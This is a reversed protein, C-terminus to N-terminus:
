SRAPPRRRDVTATVTFTATAGSPSTSRPTRHRRDRRGPLHRRRRRRLDLDVGTLSAPFTDTVTADTCPRRARRQHRRDHLHDASGPVATAVGDTKTISLDATPTSRTPTPRRTTARREPRRRHGAAAVTATNVLNGTRPAASSASSPSRPRAARCCTSRPPSTARRREAPCARAPRRPARGPAAWCRDGALHRHGDRGVVASPGANTVVVTYVLPRAPCRPPRRRRDEHDGPRRHPRAHRHRDGHQQGADSRDCRGAGRGDGHEGAAGDGVGRDVGDGHVDGFGVAGVDGVRRDVGFGVCSGCSSGVSAVCSWVAGSLVGPLVDTVTAGVVTSPGANSAVITYTVSSGPVAVVAGDTKTVVLDASPTLVDVDTAVNNGPVPDVVGAGM